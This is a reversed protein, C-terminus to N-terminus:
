FASKSKQKIFKNADSSSTSKKVVGPKSSTETEGRNLKRIKRVMDVQKQQDQTLKIPRGNEDSTRVGAEYTGPLREAGSAKSGVGLGAAAISGAMIANRVLKNKGLSDLLGEDLMEPHNAALYEKFNM